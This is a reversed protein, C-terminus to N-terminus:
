LGDMKPYGLKLFGGDPFELPQLRTAKETSLFFHCVEGACRMLVEQWFDPPFGVTHFFMSLKRRIQISALNMYNATLDGKQALVFIHNFSPSDSLHTECLRSLAGTVKFHNVSGQFMNMEVHEDCKNPGLQSHIRSGDAKTRPQQKFDVLLGHHTTYGWHDEM